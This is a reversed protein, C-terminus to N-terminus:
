VVLSCTSALMRSRAPMLHSLDLFNSYDWGWYELVGGGKGGWMGLFLQSLEDRM